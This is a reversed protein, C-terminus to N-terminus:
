VEGRSDRPLQYDCYGEYKCMNITGNQDKYHCPGGATCATGSRESETIPMVKGPSLNCPEPEKMVRLMGEISAITIGVRKDYDLCLYEIGRDIQENTM